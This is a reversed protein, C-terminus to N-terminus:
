VDPVLNHLVDWEEPTPQYQEELEHLREKDDLDAFMHPHINFWYNAMYKESGDPVTCGAHFSNPNMEGLLGDATSFHSYFLVADGAVPQVAVGQKPKSNRISKCYKEWYRVISKPKSIKEGPRSQTAYRWADEPSMHSFPFITQGGESDTLYIVITLFRGVYPYSNQPNPVGLGSLQKSDYHPFYRGDSVYRQIQITANRVLEASLQTISKIRNNLNRPGNSAGTTVMTSSRWGGNDDGTARSLTATKLQSKTKSIITGIESKKVLNKLHIIGPALGTAAIPEEGPIPIDITENVQIDIWHLRHENRRVMSEPILGVAGVVAIVPAVFMVMNWIFAKRKLEEANLRQERLLKGKGM